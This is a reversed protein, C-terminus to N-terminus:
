DHFFVPSNDISNNRTRCLKLLKLFRKGNLKKKEFLKNQTESKPNSQHCWKGNGANRVIILEIDPVCTSLWWGFRKWEFKWNTNKKEHYFSLPKESNKVNETDTLPYFCFCLRQFLCLVLISCYRSRFLKGSRLRPHFSFSIFFRKM